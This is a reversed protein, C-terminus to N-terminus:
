DDDNESETAGEAVEYEADFDEQTLQMAVGAAEATLRQVEAIAQAPTGATDPDDLVEGLEVELATLEAYRNETM